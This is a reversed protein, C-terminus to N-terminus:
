TKKLTNALTHMHFHTNTPHPNTTDTTFQVIISLHDTQSQNFGNTVSCLCPVSLYETKKQKKGLEIGEDM